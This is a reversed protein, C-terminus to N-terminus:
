RGLWWTVVATLEPASLVHGGPYLKFSVDAFGLGKMYDVSQQVLAPPRAPDDQGTSFWGRIVNSGIGGQIVGGHLVAFARFLPQNTALNPASSGGGSFGAALVHQEDLTVGPKARVEALCELAHTYDETVSGPSGGVQWNYHGAILRSDPAVIIFGRSVALDRFAGVMDAGSGDSGHYALLLPRAHGGCNAPLYFSGTRGSSNLALLQGEASMTPPGADAPPHGADLRIASGDSAPHSTSRGGDVHFPPAADLVQYAPRPPHTSPPTASHGPDSAASPAGVTDGVPPPHTPGSCASAVLLGFALVIRRAM